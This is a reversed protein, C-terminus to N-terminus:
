NLRLVGFKKRIEDERAKALEVSDKTKKEWEFRCVEQLNNIRKGKPLSKGAMNIYNLVQWRTTEWALHKHFELKEHYGERAEIIEAITLCELEFIGLRM